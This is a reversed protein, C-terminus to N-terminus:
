GAQPQGSERKIWHYAAVSNKWFYKEQAARSKGASISRRWRSCRPTRRGSIATRGTAASCCVIKASSATSNTWGRGIFRRRRRHGQRRRAASDGVAQRLGPSAQRTRAPQRQLGCARRCGAAPHSAASPGARCATPACPRHDACHNRDAGSEPEGYGDRTGRRALLKLDALFAPKAAEEAFNRGWLNGYRIGRFLPNRHFRELQKGFEPQGPELDGVTGVIITDKAAVDLVWQNDELWPSAEVEIAGTIGLSATLKRYRDPLAPQYLVANDKAPWPVGQPRNPDFLHIHTDIIPIGAALPAAAAVGAAALFTRRLVNPIISGPAPSGHFNRMSGPEYAESDDDRRRSEGPAGRVGGRGSRGNRKRDFDGALVASRRTDSRLRARRQATLKTRQPHLDVSQGVAVHGAHLDVRAVPQREIVIRDGDGFRAPAVASDAASEGGQLHRQRQGRVGYVFAGVRKSEAEVMGVAHDAAKSDQGEIKYGGIRAGGEVPRM